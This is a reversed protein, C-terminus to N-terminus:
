MEIKLPVILPRREIKNHTYRDVTQPIYKKIDKRDAGPNKETIKRYAEDALKGIERTIEESEHM